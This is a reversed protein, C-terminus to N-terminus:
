KAPGLFKTSATEVCNEKDCFELEIEQKRKKLDKAAIVVFFSGKQINGPPLQIETAGGILQVRGPIGKLQPRLEMSEHTKNILSYSYLNSLSDPSPKQFLTGPARLVTAEVSSRSALGFVLGGILALLVFSYGLMRPTLKLKEGKAIGAESALRILGKPKNVKEMIHDCADMCATCNICELQTGNRIDIGTPCVKVCQFCDICDGRETDEIKSYKKRPEGRVYDYAVVVSHKDLLVGQLRGYPCVVICIQERMYSYVFFFVGTFLFLAIFGGLHASVPESIIKLLEDMSIIYALFFNAILFSILFFISYKASKKLIKERTWPGKNLARQHSADGEIWYEIKRFVMEMFITQPCAWGCFLRGFVVTFLVVFVMFCLMALAFLFMDQPFFAFGFIIFKREVINLLLLPEGNVKIFPLAFFLVLYIISAINRKNYFRGFPKTPYIWNRKGDKKITSISDRFSGDKQGPTQNM